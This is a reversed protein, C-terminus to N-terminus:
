TFTNGRRDVAGSLTIATRYLNSAQMLIPGSATGHFNFGALLDTAEQELHDVNAVTDSVLYIVFTMRVVVESGDHDVLDVNRSQRIVVAYTGRLKAQPWARFVSGKLDPITDLLDCIQATIDIM